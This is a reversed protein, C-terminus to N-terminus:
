AIHEACPGIGAVSYEEPVSYGASGALAAVTRGVLAVATHGAAVAVAVMRGVAAKRGAPM